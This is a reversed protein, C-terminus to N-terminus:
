AFMRTIIPFSSLNGIDDLWKFSKEFFDGGFEIRENNEWKEGDGLPQSFVDVLSSVIEQLNM